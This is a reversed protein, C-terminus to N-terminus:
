SAAPFRPMQKLKTKLADRAAKACIQSFWIYSATQGWYVVVTDLAPHTLCFGGNGIKLQTIDCKEGRPFTLSVSFVQLVRWNPSFLESCLIVDLSAESTHTAHMHGKLTTM